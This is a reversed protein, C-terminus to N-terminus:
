PSPNEKAAFQEPLSLLFDFCQDTKLGKTEDSIWVPSQWVGKEIPTGFPRDISAAGILSVEHREWYNGSSDRTLYKSVIGTEKWAELPTRGDKDITHLPARGESDIAVFPRNLYADLTKEKRVDLERRKAAKGTDSERYAKKTAKSTDSKRYAKESKARWAKARKKYADALDQAIDFDRVDLQDAFPAEAVALDDEIIEIGASDLAALENIFIELQLKSPPM